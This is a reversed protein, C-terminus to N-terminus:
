PCLCAGVLHINFSCRSLLCVHMLEHLCCVVCHVLELIPMNVPHVPLFLQWFWSAPGIVCTSQYAGWTESTSNAWTHIQM